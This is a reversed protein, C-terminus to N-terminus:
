GRNFGPVGLLRFGIGYCMASSGSSLVGGLCDEAPGPFEKVSGELIVELPRTM